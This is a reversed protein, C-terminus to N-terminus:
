GVSALTRLACPCVVHYRAQKQQRPLPVAHVPIHATQLGGANLLLFSPGPIIQQSVRQRPHFLKIPAM